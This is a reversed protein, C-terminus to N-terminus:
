ARIPRITDFLDAAEKAKTESAISARYNQQLVDRIMPAFSRLKENTVSLVEDREKQMDEKTTGTYFRNMAKYMRTAPTYPWDLGSVTGIISRTIDRESLNLQEIYEPVEEFVKYSEKLNPDRYTSFAVTGALNDFGFFAGYAGGLVRIKNHLYDASLITQLVRFAGNYEYGKARFSGAAANYQVNGPYTLIENNRSLHYGGLRPTKAVKALPDEVPVESLAKIFLEFGPLAKTYGDHDVSIGFSLREKRLIHRRIMEMHEIIEDKMSEFEELWRRLCIYYGEGDTLYRFRYLPSFQMQAMMETTNDGNNALNQPIYQAQESLIELIRKTDAFKTRWLSEFLLSFGKEANGDAVNLGNTLFCKIEGEEGRIATAEPFMYLSGLHSNIENQLESYTFNETDMKNLLCTYLKLYPLEEEPLDTVDFRTQIYTIGGTANDVHILPVDEALKEVTYELPLPKKDIDERTLHPISALEEATAERSQYDKLAKTEKVMKAIEDETMAAKKAALMEKMAKERQVALGKKPKLIVLATHDSDLVEQLLSEFYGTKLDKYLQEFVTGLNLADFAKTEDYLMIHFTKQLYDLGRMEGSFNNMRYNIEKNRLLASATKQDIGNRITEAFKERIITLFQDAQEPEAGNAVVCVMPQLMGDDQYAFVDKGIGADMVAKKIPAGPMGFLISSLIGWAVGKKLDVGGDVKAGFQLYTRGKEDEEEGIPYTKVVNQFGLSKQIGIKSDVPIYDFKSLYERDLFSLMEKMDANGYLLIYSNSPSYYTQYFELLKEYTLAPIVEPDGGSEVGYTTDPYLVELMSHMRIRDTNSYSGKMENYVVGNIMIDAEPSELEYHWGEQLFIEKVSTVLPHFVADMYVNVLNKFDKDNCSGVPYATWDSSTWANRFTCMSGKALEPLIGKVPFKKSGCLVSHELIHPTGMSDMPITRFGITFFKNPDDNAILVIRAGSKTHRLVVGQADIDKLYCSEKQEYGECTFDKRETM